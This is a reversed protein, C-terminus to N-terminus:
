IFGHIFRTAHAPATSNLRVPQERKPGIDRSLVDQEDAGEQRIPILTEFVMAPEIQKKGALGGYREAELGM